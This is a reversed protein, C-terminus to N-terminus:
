ETSSPPSQSTEGAWSTTRLCDADLLRYHYLSSCRGVSGGYVHGCRSPFARALFLGLFLTTPACFINNHKRQVSEKIMKSCAYTKGSGTEGVLILNQNKHTKNILELLYTM